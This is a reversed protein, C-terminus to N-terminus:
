HVKREREPKPLDFRGDLGAMRRLEDVSLAVFGGMTETVPEREAFQNAYCMFEPEWGASMVFRVILRSHVPDQYISFSDYHVATPVPARDEVRRRVWAKIRPVAREVQEHTFERGERLRLVAIGYQTVAFDFGSEAHPHDNM